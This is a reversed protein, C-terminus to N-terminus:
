RRRPREAGSYPEYVAYSYTNSIKLVKGDRGVWRQAKRRVTPMDRWSRTERVTALKYLKGRHRIIKDGVIGDTRWKDRAM